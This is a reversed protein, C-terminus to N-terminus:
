GARQSEADRRANIENLYATVKAPTDLLTGDLAIPVDDATPPRMDAAMAVLDLEPIREGDKGM